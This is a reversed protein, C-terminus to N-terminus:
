QIGTQRINIQGKTSNNFFRWEESNAYRGFSEQETMIPVEISDVIQETYKNFLYVTEGDKINFNCLYAGNESNSKGNVTIIGGSPLYVDPCNYKTLNDINDSLYYDDLKIEKESENYLEIWDSDGRASLKNIVLGDIKENNKELVAEVMVSNDKVLKSNVKLTKEFIKEGNVLWYQFSYGRKAKVSIKVDYNNYYTGSYFQADQRYIELSNCIVKGEQPVQITLQYKRGVKFYQKLVKYLCDERKIIAEKVNGVRGDWYKQFSEIWNDGNNYRSSEYQYVEHNMGIFIEDFCDILNDTGFTTNLLDCVRNVFKQRYYKSNMLKKFIISGNDSLLKELIENGFVDKAWNGEPLYALDVDYLWFRYRGDSYKNNDIHDGTYRWVAYNNDPWDVNNILVQIAYYTMFQEMDVAAELKKRNSKDDLDKLFLKNVSKLCAEEVGSIVEVYEQELGCEKAINYSSRDESLSMIGYYKGNIYVIVKKSGGVPYLGAQQALNSIFDWRMQTVSYDQGGSKLILKNFRSNRSYNTVDLYDKWFTGQFKPKNGDYIENAVLKLSRFDYGSSSAGATGLGISQSEILLGNSDFVELYADRIWEKGRRNYNGPVLTKDAKPDGGEDLYNQYTIGPIFIGKEYDYLNNNDTIISIVPYYYRTYIEKGVLFTRNLSESYEDKYSIVARLTIGKIQEKASIKIPKVYVNGTRAPDNGNITYLIKANGPLLPNKSLKIKIDHNYFGSELNCIINDNETFLSITELDKTEGAYYYKSVFALIAFFAIFCILRKSKLFVEKVFNM